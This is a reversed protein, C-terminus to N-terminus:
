GVGRRQSSHDQGLLGGGGGSDEAKLARQKRSKRGGVDSAMSAASCGLPEGVPGGPRIGVPRYSQGLPVQSPLVLCRYRCSQQNRPGWSSRARGKCM